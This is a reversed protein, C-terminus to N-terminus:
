SVRSQEQVLLTIFFGGPLPNISIIRQGDHLSPALSSPHRRASPFFTKRRAAPAAPASLVDRAASGLSQPGLAQFAKAETRPARSGSPAARSGVRSAAAPM